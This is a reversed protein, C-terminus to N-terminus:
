RAGKQRGDGIFEKLERVKSGLMRVIDEETAAAEKQMEELTELYEGHLANGRTLEDGNTDHEPFAREVSFDEDLPSDRKEGSRM